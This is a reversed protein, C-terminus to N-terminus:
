NELIISFSKGAFTTDDRTIDVRKCISVDIGVGVSACSQAFSSINLVNTCLLHTCQEDLLRKHGQTRIFDGLITEVEIIRSTQHRTTM